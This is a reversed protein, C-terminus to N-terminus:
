PIATVALRGRSPYSVHPALSRQRARERTIVAYIPVPGLAAGRHSSPIRSAVARTRPPAAEWRRASEEELEGLAGRLAKGRAFRAHERYRLAEGASVRVHFFELHAQCPRAAVLATEFVVADTDSGSTPVLIM